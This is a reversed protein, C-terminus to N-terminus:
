PRPADRRRLTQSPSEGYVEAYYGSFRGLHNFGWSLAVEAVTVRKPDGALLEARVGHLRAERLFQMPRVGVNRQFAAQLGRASVGAAASVQAVTLPRRANAVMWEKAFRITSSGVAVTPASSPTADFAAAVADAISQNWRARVTEPATPDLLRPAAEGIRSRLLRLADVGLTRRFALQRPEDDGRRAAAISELFAGAFRVSHQGSPLGEFTFDRGVPYMVPIGPLLQVPDRTGTDITMGPGTAWALVYDHGPVITGWRRAAVDSTGVVVDQDGVARFRFAFGDRAADGIHIDRSDYVREYLAVADDLSSGRRDVHIPAVDHVM